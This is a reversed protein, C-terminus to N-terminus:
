RGPDNPSPHYVKNYIVLLTGDEQQVASDDGRTKVYVSQGPALAWSDPGCSCSCAGQAGAAVRGLFMEKPVQEEPFTDALSGSFAGRVAQVVVEVCSPFPLKATGSAPLAALAAALDFPHPVDVAEDVAVPPDPSPVSEPAVRTRCPESALYRAIAPKLQVGLDTCHFYDQLPL